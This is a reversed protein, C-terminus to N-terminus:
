ITLMAASDAPVTVVYGDGGPSVKITTSPGSLLGTTTTRGFSQGGLTVGSTSGLRPAQLRELDASAGGAPLRVAVTQSTSRRNTIVAHIHGDPSRTAWVTIGSAGHPASVRLLKSGAPAAQAFMMMGYYEPHVIAQWKGKVQSSGIVENITKPVTHINVGVAGARALQYLADLVWLSSAFSDSVGRAGGCSIGNLEDIRVGLRHHRAVTVYRGQNAALGASSSTSILQAGTPHSSKTCHKLPYAHLTVLRVRRESSLFSGLQANWVKSGSSPGAVPTSPLAASFSSFDRKYAQFDYTAPRGRIHIGAANKYWPFSGYLEPENGLELAQISQRGIGSVFKQAEYTALRRSNAELDIGLILRAKLATAVAHAVKLWKADLSYKVGGPQAM